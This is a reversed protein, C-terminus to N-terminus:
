NSVDFVGHLVLRRNDSFVKDELWKLVLKDKIAFDGTIQRKSVFHPSDIFKRDGKQYVVYKVNFTGDVKEHHSYIKASVTTAM